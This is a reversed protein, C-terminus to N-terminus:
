RFRNNKLRYERLIPLAEIIESHFNRPKRNFDYREGISCIFEDVVSLAHSAAVLYLGYPENITILEEALINLENLTKGIVEAHEAPLLASLDMFADRAEKVASRCDEHVRRITQANNFGRIPAGGIRVKKNIYNFENLLSALTSLGAFGKTLARDIEFLKRRVESRKQENLQKYTIVAAGVAGAGSALNAILTLSGPQFVLNAIELMISIPDPDIEFQIDDKESTQDHSM